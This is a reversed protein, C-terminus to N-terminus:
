IMKVGILIFNEGWELGAKKAEKSNMAYNYIEEQEVESKDKRIDIGKFKTFDEFIM